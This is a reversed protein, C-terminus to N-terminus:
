WCTLHAELSASGSEGRARRGQGEARRPEAVAKAAGSCGQRGAVAKAARRPTQGKANSFVTAKAAATRPQRTARATLAKMRKTM